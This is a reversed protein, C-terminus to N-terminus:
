IIYGQSIKELKEIKQDHLQKDRKTMFSNIGLAISGLFFLMLVTLIFVEPQYMGDFEQRNM